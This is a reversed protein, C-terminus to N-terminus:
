NWKYTRYQLDDDFELVDFQSEKLIWFSLYKHGQFWLAYGKHRRYCCTHTQKTQFIVVVSSFSYYTHVHDKLCKRFTENFDFWCMFVPKWMFDKASPLIYALTDEKVVFLLKRVASILTSKEEFLPIFGEFDQPNKKNNKWCSLRAPAKVPLCLLSGSIGVCVFSYTLAASDSGRQLLVNM